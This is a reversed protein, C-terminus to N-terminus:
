PRQAQQGDLYIIRMSNTFGFMMYIVTPLQVMSIPWVRTMIMPM